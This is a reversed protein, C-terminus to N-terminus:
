NSDSVAGPWYLDWRPGDPFVRNTKNFPDASLVIDKPRNVVLRDVPYVFSGNKTNLQGLVQEQRTVSVVNSSETLGATRWFNADGDLLYTMWPGTNKRWCVQISWELLGSSEETILVENGVEDALRALVTQKKTILFLYQALIALVGVVAVVIVTIFTKKM